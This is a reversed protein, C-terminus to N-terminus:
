HIRRDRYPRAGRLAGSGSWQQPRSRGVEETNFARDFDGAHARASSSCEGLINGGRGNPYALVRGEGTTSTSIDGAVEADSVGRFGPKMAGAQGIGAVGIRPDRKKAM